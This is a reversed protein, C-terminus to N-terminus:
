YLTETMLAVKYQGLLNYCSGLHGDLLDRSQQILQWTQYKNQPTSYYKSMVTFIDLFVTFHELESSEEFWTCLINPNVEVAIVSIEDGLGPTQDLIPLGEVSFHSSSQRTSGPSSIGEWWFSVTSSSVAMKPERTSHAKPHLGDHLLLWLLSFLFAWTLQLM